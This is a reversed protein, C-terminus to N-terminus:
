SSAEATTKRSKAKKDTTYQDLRSKLEEIIERVTEASVADIVEEWDVKPERLIIDLWHLYLRAKTASGEQADAAKLEDVTPDDAAAAENVDAVYTYPAARTITEESASYHVKHGGTPEATAAAAAEAAQRPKAKKDDAMDRKQQVWEENSRPITLEMEFVDHQKMLEAAKKQSSAAEEKTAGRAETKARLAKIQDLIKHREQKILDRAMSYTVRGQRAAKVILDRTPDTDEMKALLYLGSISINLSDFDPFKPNQSLAYVARFNLSTDHSWGFNAKIWPMYKGHGGCLKEAEHLLKGVEVVNQISKKELAKIRTAIQALTIKGTM